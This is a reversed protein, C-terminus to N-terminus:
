RNQIVHEEVDGPTAGAHDRKEIRLFIGAAGAEVDQLGQNGDAGAADVADTEHFAPLFQEVERLGLGIEDEGVNGFLQAQDAGDEHDGEKKM